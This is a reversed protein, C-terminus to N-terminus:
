ATASQDEGSELPIEIETEGAELMYVTAIMALKGMDETVKGVDRAHMYGSLLSAAQAHTMNVEALVAAVVPYDAEPVDFTGHLFREGDKLITVSLQYAM